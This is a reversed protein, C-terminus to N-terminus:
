LYLEMMLLLLQQLQHSNTIIAVSSKYYTVTYDGAANATFSVNEGGTSSSTIESGDFEVKILGFLGSVDTSVNVATFVTSADYDPNAVQRTLVM